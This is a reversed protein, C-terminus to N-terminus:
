KKIFTNGIRTYESDDTKCYYTSSGEYKQELYDGGDENKLKVINRGTFHEKYSREVRCNRDDICINTSNFENEPDYYTSDGDFYSFIFFVVAIGVVGLITNIVAFLYVIMSGIICGVIFRGFVFLFGQFKASHMEIIFAAILLGLEIICFVLPIVTSETKISIIGAVVDSLCACYTIIKGSIKYKNKHTGTYLTSLVGMIMIFYCLFGSIELITTIM